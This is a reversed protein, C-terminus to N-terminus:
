TSHLSLVQSNGDLTLKAEKLKAKRYATSYVGGAQGGLYILARGRQELRAGECIRRRGGFGRWYEASM